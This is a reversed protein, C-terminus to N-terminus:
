TSQTISKHKLTLIKNLIFGAFFVVALMLVISLGTPIDLFISAWIGVSVCIEGTIIAIIVMSKPSTAWLRAFLAPLVLLGSILLSGVAQLAVACFGALLGIFLLKERNAHVGSIVALEYHTALKLQNHWIKKLSLLGIAIIIALKPLQQSSIDLLSGFLFGLVNAQAQTLMTLTILGLCLLTSATVALTADNPLRTDELFHICLVVLGSIILMGLDAPLNMASAIAVGLLAGHALTDSFFAMRRWLVLCGLPASLLTLLSGAIWAPWIISLWSM